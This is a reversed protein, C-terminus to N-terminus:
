KRRRHGVASSNAAGAGEQSEGGGRARPRWAQVTRVGLGALVVRLRAASVAISAARCEELVSSFDIDELLLAADHLAPKSRFLLAVQERVTLVDTDAAGASPGRVTSEAAAGITATAAATSAGAAAVARASTFFSPLVLGASSPLGPSAPGAAGSLPPSALGAACSTASGAAVYRAHGAAVAPTTPSGGANLYAWMSALEQVMYGREGPAMGYSAMRTALESSSM